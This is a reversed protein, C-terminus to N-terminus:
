GFKLTQDIIYEIQKMYTQIDNILSDMTTDMTLVGNLLVTDKPLRYTPISFGMMNLHLVVEGLDTLGYQKTNNNINLYFVVFEGDRYSIKSSIKYYKSDDIIKLDLPLLKETLQDKDKDIAAQVIKDIYQQESSDFQYMTEFGNDTPVLTHFSM